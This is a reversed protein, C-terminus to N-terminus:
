PYSGFSATAADQLTTARTFPSAYVTATGQATDDNNRYIGRKWYFKSQAVGGVSYLTPAAYDVIQVLSSDTGVVRKYVTVHGTSDIAWTVKFVFDVWTDYVHPGLDTVIDGAGPISGGGTIPGGVTRMSYHRATNNSSALLFQFCAQASHGTNTDDGHLQAVIFWPTAGNPEIWSSPIYVSLAYYQTGSAPSEDQNSTGFMQLIEDRNTGTGLPNDGTQITWAITSNPYRSPQNLGQFVARNNNVLQRGYWGYNQAVTFGRVDSFSYGPTLSIKPSGGRAMADIPLLLLLLAVFWKM